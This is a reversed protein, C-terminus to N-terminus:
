GSERVGDAKSDSDTDTRFWHDLHADLVVLDLLQRAVSPRDAATGDALQQALERRLRQREGHIRGAPDAIGASERLELARAVIARAEAFEVQGALHRRLLACNFSRCVQFRHEYVTCRGCSEYACPQLFHRKGQIEAVKLGDGPKLPGEDAQLPAHDFLTGNCCMACGVCLSGEDARASM